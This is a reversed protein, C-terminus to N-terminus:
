AGGEGPLISTSRSGERSAERPAGGLRLPPPPPAAVAVAKTAGAPLARGLGDTGSLPCAAARRLLLAAGEDDKEDDEEEKPAPYSAACRVLAAREATLRCMATGWAVM